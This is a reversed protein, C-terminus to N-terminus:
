EVMFVGNLMKGMACGYVLKGTKTPTFTVEVPKNLPLPTNINYEDLVIETACTQDTTRTLVLKVPEGKKLTVPSPEYGKDTVTLALTSPEGPKGPQPTISPEAPKADKSCGQGASLVAAALTLALLPKIIKSFFPM